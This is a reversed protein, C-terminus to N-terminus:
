YYRIKSFNKYNKIFNQVDPTKTITEFDRLSVLKHICAIFVANARNKANLKQFITEIQKKITSLTVKFIFAIQNNEFGAAMLIIVELERRSLIKDENELILNKPLIEYNRMSFIRHYSKNRKYQVNSWKKIYNKM